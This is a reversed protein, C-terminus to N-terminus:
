HEQPVNRQLNPCLIFPPTGNSLQSLRDVIRLHSGLFLELIYCHGYVSMKKSIFMSVPGKACRTSVLRHDGM